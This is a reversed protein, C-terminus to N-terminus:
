ILVEETMVPILNKVHSPAFAPAMANHLMKWIKGNATAIVNRGVIPVLFNDSEEHQPFARKVHVQDMLGIDTIVVQSVAMPWLDMYFIGKLDYKQAIMKLYEQPHTNQPLQAAMEGLVKLHGWIM